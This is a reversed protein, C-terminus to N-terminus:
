EADDGMEETTQREAGEAAPQPTRDGEGEAGAARPLGRGVLMELEALRQARDALAREYSLKFELLIRESDILDLFSASAAKFATEAAELSQEAKPVLTDHFLDIKRESDRFRYLVMKIRSNLANGKEERAHEAAMLRARAEREGARYKQWWIPVNVSVMAIVPDKGSDPTGPMLADGTAIYDLGLTIDPFYAKAALEIAREHKLVTHDLAILDPNSEAAWALVQEDTAAIAEQPVSEPWPVPAGPPRNLAANLRAAIPGRLDTLTSLRDELKGLEVQAKV